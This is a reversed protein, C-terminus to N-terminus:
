LKSYKFKYTQTKGFDFDWHIKTLNGNKDLVFSLDADFNNEGKFLGTKLRNQEDYRFTITGSLWTDFKDWTALKLTGDENYEYFESGFFGNNAFFLKRVLQNNENYHYSFEARRGDSYNRFSKMLLGNEDYEYTTITELSDYRYVKRVLKTGQYEYFSPGGMENNWNYNEEKVLFEKTANLLPSSYSYFRPTKEIINEYEYNFTQNWNGFDWFEKLLKGDSNYTYNIIGFDKGDQILIGKILNDDKYEYYIFGFFWGNLGRCEAEIKKGNNYKYWVIGKLKDSREFYDEILNGDSDYKYFNNSTISDSFERYKRILNGNENLFHYNISYRSEDLLKWKAKYNKNELSYLFHTVGKEGLSNEYHLNKIRTKSNVNNNIIVLFFMAIVSIKYIVRIM